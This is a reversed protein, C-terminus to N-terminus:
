QIRTLYRLFDSDPSLVVTTEDKLTKEYAELTRMFQFFDPDRNYADAYIKLATADGEGRVQQSIQYAEAQIITAQKDTEARIKLSEEEGESRSLNAQRRREARMREFVAAENEPPLDARKIRVDVIEIGLDATKVNSLAAVQDMIDQRNESIIENFTYKGLENRLDSYIIEDLRNQALNETRVREYFTKLDSIRWRAFNDVVLTKKDQSIIEKPAADYELLRKEFVEVSEIFPLKIKLGAETDTTIIEGFRVVVVQETEDVTYFLSNLSIAAAFIGVLIYMIKKEM